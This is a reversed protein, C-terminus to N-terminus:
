GRRKPGGKPPPGPRRAPSSQPRSPSPTQGRPGSPRGAAPPSGSRKPERVADQAAPRADRTKGGDPRPGKFRDPRRSDAKPGEKRKPTADPKALNPRPGSRPAGPRPGTARVPRPADASPGDRRPPRADTREPRPAAARPARDPRPAESRPADPRPARPEARQAALRADSRPARAPIATPRVQAVPGAPKPKAKRKPHPSPTITPKAWGAKYVTKPKGPMGDDPGTHHGAGPATRGRRQVDGGAHTAIPKSFQARDGNPLNGPAIHDAFQERIVRPGVEEIEGVALTGLALPGYSMRILRNVTLGLAELVRRVERNKGEALTVTIWVNAGQGGEKAKDLHAEIAGYSVGEVTVGNKLSDLKEQTVRGRARARYRRVIASAPLELARALGGDNTLLLLGESNLDLRGVSILRPLAKPLADFVTPREQTDKHTTVLGVPKHYRFLRAPEAAQVLAGDVTLVDDAEVKTAPTTVQVGNVFVRGAEILREVERRSAVGARAMAKAIREGGQGEPTEQTDQPDHVM